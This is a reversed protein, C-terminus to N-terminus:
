EQIHDHVQASSCFAQAAEEGLMNNFVNTKTIGPSIEQLYFNKWDIISNLYDTLSDLENQPHFKQLIELLIIYVLIKSM